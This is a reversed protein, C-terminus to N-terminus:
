DENEKEVLAKKWALDAGLFMNYLMWGARNLVKPGGEGVVYGRTPEYYIRNEYTRSRKFSEWANSRKEKLEEITM